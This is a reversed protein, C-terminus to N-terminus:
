RNKSVKQEKDNSNQRFENKKGEFRWFKALKRKNETGIYM